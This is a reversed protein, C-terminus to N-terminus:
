WKLVGVILGINSETHLRLKKWWICIMFIRGTLIWEKIAKKKGRQFHYQCLNLSVDSRHLQYQRALSRTGVSSYSIKNQLLAKQAAARLNNWCCCFLDCPLCLIEHEKLFQRKPFCFGCGLAKVQLLFCGSILTAAYECRPKDNGLLTARWVVGSGVDSNWLEVCWQCLYVEPFSDSRPCDM